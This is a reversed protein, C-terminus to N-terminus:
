PAVTLSFISDQGVITGRVTAGAEDGPFDTIYVLCRAAVFGLASM